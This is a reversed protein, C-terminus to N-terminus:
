VAKAPNWSKHVIELRNGDIDLVNAAYYGDSFHLGMGPAGDDIGGAQVAAVDAADQDGRSGTLLLACLGVLGPTDGQHWAASDQAM